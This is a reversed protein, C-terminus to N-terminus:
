ARVLRIIFPPSHQVLKREVSQDLWGFQGDQAACIHVSAVFRQLRRQVMCRVVCAWIDDGQKHLVIRQQIRAVNATPCRQVPARVNAERIHGDLLM